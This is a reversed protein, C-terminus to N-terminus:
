ALMGIQVVRIAGRYWYEPVRPFYRFPIQLASVQRWDYDLKNLPPPNGYRSAKSPLVGARSEGFPRQVSVLGM